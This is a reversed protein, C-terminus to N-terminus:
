PRRELATLHAAVQDFRSLLFAGNQHDKRGERAESETPSRVQLSSRSQTEM